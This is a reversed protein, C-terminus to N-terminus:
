EIYIAKRVRVEGGASSVAVYCLSRAPLGAITTTGAQGAIVRKLTRGRSDYVLVDCPRFSVGGPLVVNVLRGAAYVAPGGGGRPLSVSIVESYSFNGDLDEQRIRYAAREVGAVQRDVYGYVTTLDSNGGANKSAVYGVQVFKGDGGSREILFGKNNEEQATAWKLDVGGDGVGATFSSFRVPLSVPNAVVTCNSNCSADYSCIGWVVGTQPDTMELSLTGATPLNSGYFCYNVQTTGGSVVPVGAPGFAVTQITSGTTTLWVRTIAYPLLGANAVAYNLQLTGTKSSSPVTAYVTGSFNSAYAVGSVNPCATNGNSNARQGVSACSTPNQANAGELVVFLLGSLTMLRPGFSVRKM